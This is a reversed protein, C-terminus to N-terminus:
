TGERELLYDMLVTLYKVPYKRVAIYCVTLMDREDANQFMEYLRARHIDEMLRHSVSEDFNELDEIKRTLKRNIYSGDDLTIEKNQQPKDDKPLHINWM